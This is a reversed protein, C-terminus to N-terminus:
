KMWHGHPLQSHIERYKKGAHTWAREAKYFEMKAKSVRDVLKRLAVGTKKKRGKDYAQQAKNLKLQTKNWRDVTKRLIRTTSEIQAKTPMFDTRMTTNKKKRKDIKM